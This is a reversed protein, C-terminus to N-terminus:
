RPLAALAPIRRIAGAILGAVAGLVVGVVVSSLAAALRLLVAEVVPPLVGALNGGLAPEDVGSGSLNIDWLALHTAALFVGHVVGAVLLSVFPRRSWIVAVVIWVVLPALALLVTVPDGTEVVHMDHLVGRVSALLALGLIAIFPLGLRSTM